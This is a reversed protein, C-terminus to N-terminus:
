DDISKMSKGIIIEHNEEVFRKIDKLRITFMWEEGNRRHAVVPTRGSYSADRISQEMAKSINLKEVRKVEFHCSLDSVVDSSDPSRGCYQLTRSANVGFMERLTKAFELEGKAGKRRSNTM